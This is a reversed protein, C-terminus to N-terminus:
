WYYLELVDSVYPPAGFGIYMQYVFWLFYAGYVCYALLRQNTKYPHALLWPILILSYLETYMPLRGILVGSGSLTSTIYLATTMVTANISLPIVPPVDEMHDIEDKKIFAMVAPVAAVLARIPNAGDDGEFDKATMDAAYETEQAVDGVFDDVTGTIAMVAFVAVFLWVRWSWAKGQILFFIPVMLYASQHVGGLFWPVSESGFLEFIPGVGGLLITVPVYFYWKNKVIWETMIMLITVALFQRVGNYMWTFLTSAMFIYVSMAINASYRRFFTALLLGQITAILALWMTPDTSIYCKFIMMCGYYFVSGTMSDTYEGFYQMHDPCQEFMRIYAGTDMIGGRVAAFFTVPLMLAIALSWKARYAKAENSLLPNREDPQFLGILFVWILMGWYIPM